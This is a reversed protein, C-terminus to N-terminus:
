KEGEEKLCKELGKASVCLVALMSGSWLVQKGASEAEATLLVFSIITAMTCIAKKISKRM